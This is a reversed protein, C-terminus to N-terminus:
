CSLLVQKFLSINSLSSYSCCFNAHDVAKLSGETVYYIIIANEACYKKYDDLMKKGEFHSM